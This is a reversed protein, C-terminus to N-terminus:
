EYGGSASLMAELMEEEEGLMADIADAKDDEHHPNIHTNWFNWSSPVQNRVLDGLRVTSTTRGLRM